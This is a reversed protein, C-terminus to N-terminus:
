SIMVYELFIGDTRSNMEFVIVLNFVIDVDGFGFMCIMEVASCCGITYVVCFVSCYVELGILAEIM